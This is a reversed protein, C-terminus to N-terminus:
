LQKIYWDVTKKIGEELKTPPLWGMFHKLMRLNNMVKHPAGDPKVLDFVLKGKYGVTDKILYSLDRITIGKCVGINIPDITFAASLSKILIDAADEVYLWERVPKGTGWVVVKPKRQIKADVIKKILAGLAHSRKEDFYDGPGYMNPLILNMTEFGYQKFYSWAQVWSAKRAFGYSLVSEHLEGEWWNDENFQDILQGPYTCNSIPNVFRKIGYLRAIEMLNTSIMINNWYLEGPKEYGFSIGGVFAACNIVYDFNNKKFLERTKKFDRLDNGLSLSAPVYDLKAEKLKRVVHTGLFGSSGAVLIKM